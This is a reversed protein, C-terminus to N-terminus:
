IECLSLFAHLYKGTMDATGMRITTMTARRLTM